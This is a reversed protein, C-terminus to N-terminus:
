SGGVLQRWNEGGGLEEARRGVTKDWSDSTRRVM